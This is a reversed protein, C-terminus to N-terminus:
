DNCMFRRALRFHTKHSFNKIVIRCHFPNNVQKHMRLVADQAGDIFNLRDSVPDDM